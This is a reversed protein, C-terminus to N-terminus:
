PVLQCYASCPVTDSAAPAIRRMAHAAVAMPELMAAQEFSVNDPIKILNEAPVAVYEAFGGNRRSGLYDYNRCM